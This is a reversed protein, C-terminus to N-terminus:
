NNPLRLALDRSAKGRRHSQKYLGNQRWNTTYRDRDPFPIYNVLSPLAPDAAHQKTIADEFSTGVKMAKLIQYFHENQAARILTFRAERNVSQSTDPITNTKLARLKWKNYCEIVKRVNQLARTLYNTRSLTHKMFQIEPNKPAKPFIQFFLPVNSKRFFICMRLSVTTWKALLKM